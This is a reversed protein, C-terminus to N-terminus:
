QELISACHRSRAREVQQKQDSTLRAGLDARGAAALKANPDGSGHTVALTFWRYAAVPDAVVGDGDRYLVGLGYLGGADGQDAAARFWRAATEFNWPVGSGSAYMTGLYQQAVACGQDAALTYWRIAETDDHAVGRGSDFLWGVAIQAAPDGHEALPRFEKMATEYDGSKYAAYGDKMDAQTHTACASLIVAAVLPRASGSWKPLAYSWHQRRKEEM